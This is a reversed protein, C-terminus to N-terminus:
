VMKALLYPKDKDSVIFGAHYETNVTGHKAPVEVSCNICYLWRGGAHPRNSVYLMFEDNDEGKEAMEIINTNVEHKAKCNGCLVTIKVM